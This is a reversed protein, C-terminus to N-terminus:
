LIGGGGGGGWRRSRRGEGGGGGRWTVPERVESGLSQIEVLVAAHL